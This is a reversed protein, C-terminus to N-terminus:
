VIKLVSLPEVPAAKGTILASAIDMMVSGVVLVTMRATPFLVTMGRGALKAYVCPTQRMLPVSAASLVTILVSNSAVISELSALIVRVSVKSVSAEQVAIKLANLINANNGMGIPIATVNVELHVIVMTVANKPVILYQVTRELRFHTASVSETLVTVMEVVTLNVINRLVIKNM